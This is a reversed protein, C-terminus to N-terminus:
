NFLIVMTHATLPTGSMGRIYCHSRLHCYNFSLLVRTDAGFSPGCCSVGYQYCCNIYYITLQEEQVQSINSM